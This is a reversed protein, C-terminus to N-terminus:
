RHLAGAGPLLGRIGRKRAEADLTARLQQNAGVGGAVVLRKLGNMELARRSKAALM